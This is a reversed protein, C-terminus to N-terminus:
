SKNCNAEIYDLYETRLKAEQCWGRLCNDADACNIGIMMIINVLIFITMLCVWKIFSSLPNIIKFEYQM